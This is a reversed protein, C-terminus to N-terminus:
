EHRFFSPRIPRRPRRGPRSASDAEPFMADYDNAAGLRDREAELRTIAREVAAYHHPLLGNADRSPEPRKIYPPPSPETM